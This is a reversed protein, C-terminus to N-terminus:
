IAGSIRDNRAMAVSLIHHRLEAQQRCIPGKHIINQTTESQKTVYTFGVAAAVVAPRASLLASLTAERM